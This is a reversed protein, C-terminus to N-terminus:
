VRIAGPIVFRITTGGSAPSLAEISGGHAQVLRQAIALGLGMGGPDASTFFRDFVHPLQATPIGPGTDEVAFRVGTQSRSLRVSVTGGSPTHHLANTLLNTLVEGLRLPDAEITRPADGEDIVLKVGADAALPRLAAVADEAAGRPDVPEEELSLVGAEAMSFTRLDELLRAMMVTEDLLPQVHETDAPYLGDLMGEITGRIVQLPTRLEHAVDALLERRRTENTELRTTMEDFRRALRALPRSPVSGVRVSYDGAAVRDAADMVTDMTRATRWLSRAALLLGIVVVASVVITIWPAPANGALIAAVLSALAAVLLVIVILVVLGFRRFRRGNPQGPGNWGPPRAWPPGRRLRTDTM